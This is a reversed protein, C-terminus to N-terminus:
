FKEFLAQLLLSSGAWVSLVPVTRSGGDGEFMPPSQQGHLGTSLISFKPLDAFHFQTSRLGGLYNFKRPPEM